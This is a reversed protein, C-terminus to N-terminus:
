NLSILRFAKMLWDDVAPQGKAGRPPAGEAEEAERMPEAVAAAELPFPPRAPDVAEEGPSAPVAAEEWWRM